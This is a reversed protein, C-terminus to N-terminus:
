WMLMSCLQLLSTNTDGHRDFCLFTQTLFVSGLGLRLVRIIWDIILRVSLPSPPQMTKKEPCLYTQSYPYIAGTRSWLCGGKNRVSSHCETDRCSPHLDSDQECLCEPEKFDNKLTYSEPFWTLCCLHQSFPCNITNLWYTVTSIFLRSAIWHWSVYIFQWLHSTQPSNLSNNTNM